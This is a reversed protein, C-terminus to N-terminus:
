NPKPAPELWTVFVSTFGLMLGALFNHRDRVIVFRDGDWYGRLPQSSGQKYARAVDSGAVHGRGALFVRDAAVYNTRISAGPPVSTLNNEAFRVAAIDPISLREPDPRNEPEAAAVPPSDSYALLPIKSYDAAAFDRKIEEIDLALSLDARFLPQFARELYPRAIELVQEAESDNELGLVLADRLAAALLDM